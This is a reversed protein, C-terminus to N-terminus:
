LFPAIAAQLQRQNLAGAQQWVSKDSVFIMFLPISRVAYQAALGQEQEINVKVVLAKGALASAVAAVEPATMKCPGCWSAWFDVLVPTKASALIEQLQAANVDLPTSQPPLTKKCQGCRGASALFQAPIRNKASCHPCTRIM